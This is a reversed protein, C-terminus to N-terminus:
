VKRYSPIQVERAKNKRTEICVNLEQQSYRFALSKIGPFGSLMYSIPYIRMFLGDIKTREVVRMSFLRPM